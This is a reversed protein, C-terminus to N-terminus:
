PGSKTKKPLWERAIQDPLVSVGFRQKVLEAHQRAFSAKSQGKDTRAVWQTLVWARAGMNKSRAKEAAHESIAARAIDFKMDSFVDEKTDFPLLRWAELLATQLLSFVATDACDALDICAAKLHKTGTELAKLQPSQLQQLIAVEILHELGNENTGGGIHNFVLKATNESELRYLVDIVPHEFPPMQLAAARAEEAKKKAAAIERVNMVLFAAHLREIEQDSIM